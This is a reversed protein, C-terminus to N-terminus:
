DDKNEKVLEYETYKLLRTTKKVKVEVALTHHYKEGWELGIVRTGIVNSVTDRGEGMLIKVKDGKKIEIKPLPTSECNLALKQTQYERHCIKCSIM